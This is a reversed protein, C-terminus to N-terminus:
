PRGPARGPAPGLAPDPAAGTPRSALDELVRRAAEAPNGQPLEVFRVGRALVGLALLVDGTRGLAAQLEPRYVFLPAKQLIRRGRLRVPRDAEGGLLYVAELAVPRRGLPCDRVSREADPRLPRWPPGALGAEELGLNRVKLPGCGPHVRSEAGRPLAVVDDALLVAGRQVLVAGVTSKGCAPPGCVVLGRGEVALANGHLVLCGRQIMLSALAPGTLFLLVRLPDLDPGAEVTIRRGEEVLFRGGSGAELIFFGPRAGGYPLGPLDAGQQPVAGRRILVQAPGPRVRAAFGDLDLESHITLGHAQFFHRSVPGGAASRPTSRPTV